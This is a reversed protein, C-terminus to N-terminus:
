RPPALVSPPIDLTGVARYFTASPKVVLWDEGERELYVIDDEITPQRQDAYITFVTAVVRAEDGGVRASVEDTMQSREWRPFGPRAFGLSAEVTAECTGRRRPLDVGDLAGPALRSCVGDGDRQTMARIWSRVTKAARREQASEPAPGTPGPVIGEPDDEPPPLQPSGEDGPAGGPDPDPSTTQADSAFGSPQPGDDEGVGFALGAGLGALAALAIVVALRRRGETM